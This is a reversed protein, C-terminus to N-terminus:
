LGSQSGARPARKKSRTLTQPAPPKDRYRSSLGYSRSQSRREEEDEFAQLVTKGSKLTIGGAFDELRKTYADEIAREGKEVAKERREIREEKTSLDKIRKDAAKERMDAIRVARAAAAERAEIDAKLAKNEASLDDVRKATRKLARLDALDITQKDKVHGFVNTQEELSNVSKATLIRGQL